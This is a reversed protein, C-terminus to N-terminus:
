PEIVDKAPPATVTLPADYDTFRLGSGGSKPEVLLPYAPGTAAVYLIGPSDGTEQELGVTPVGDVPKGEVIRLSSGPELLEKAWREKSTLEVFDEFDKSTASTKIWKDEFLDVPAGTLEWFDADGSLWADAGLTRLEIDSEGFTIKAIARGADDMRIDMGFEAGQEAFEGIVHVSDAAAFAEQAEALIEDASKGAFAGAAAPTPTVTPTASSSASPSASSPASSSAASAASSSAPSSAAGACGALAAVLLAAPAIPLLAARRPRATM